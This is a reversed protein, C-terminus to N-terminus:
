FDFKELFRLFINHFCRLFDRALEKFVATNRTYEKVFNDWNNDISCELNDYSDDYFRKKTPLYISLGYATYKRAKSSIICQDLSELLNTAKEQIESDDIQTKINNVFDYLDKTYMKYDNVGDFSQSNEVATDIKRKYNSKKQKLIDAFDNLDSIFDNEFVSMDIASYTYPLGSGDYYTDSADVISEGLEINSLSPNFIVDNLFLHYPLGRDPMLAESVVCVEVTEKIQYLVETMGMMCSEFILIDLECGLKNKIENLSDHLEGMSVYDNEGEDILFGNQWGCGHGMLSLCYRDAPYNDIVWQVFENITESSGMNQEPLNQIIDVENNNNVYCRFVGTQDKYSDKPDYQFILNIDDNSGTNELWHINWKEINKELNNDGSYYFMFTWDKNEIEDQSQIISAQFSTTCQVLLSFVFVIILTKKFYNM